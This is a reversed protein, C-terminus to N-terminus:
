PLAVGRKEPAATDVAEGWFDYFNFWEYPSQACHYEIRQAYRQVYGRLVEERGRRPLELRECLPEFSIRYRAGERRCFLLYVPCGLVAALVLPGQAFAAEHGLFSAKVSRSGPPTRDGAIVLLEGRDLREHLLVATDPGVKAIPILNLRFADNSNELMRNFRAANEIHTLVNLSRIGSYLALARLFELSGVHSGVLLAGRKSAIIADLQARDPFDVQTLDIRGLWAALKDLNSEAFAFMHRWSDRWTPPAPLAPTPGTHAYLRQLYLASARRARGGTVFFYGVIPFLLWRAVRRGLLRFTFFVILIGLYSGRESTRWWHSSKASRKFNRALLMPLRLLMGGVLRTHAGSIRLNDRWMDFHSVGDLPYRVRTPVNVVPMGAWALRVIIVIDFDMRTPVAANDVVEWTRALPYLRFGCMSDKIAFSLTEVWVWFHTLYRGYLRAKPVSEDYIPQGCVVATPDTTGEALFKPVDNTDHQGDADIQLAHTFGDALAQRLGRIVAAGKGGNEALHLLRVLPESAAIEILRARTPEDSGDNILYITLGHLRLAAVTPGIADKHNYVPIVICPRFTM